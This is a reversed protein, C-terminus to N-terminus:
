QKPTELASAVSPPEPGNAGVPPQSNSLRNNAGRRRL